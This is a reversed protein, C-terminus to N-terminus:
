VRGPQLMTESANSAAKTKRSPRARCTSSIPTAYVTQVPIPATPVSVMKKILISLNKYNKQPIIAKM